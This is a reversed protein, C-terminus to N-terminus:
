RERELSAKEKMKVLQKRKGSSKMMVELKGHFVGRSSGEKTAPDFSGALELLFEVPEPRLQLVGRAPISEHELDLCHGKPPCGIDFGEM